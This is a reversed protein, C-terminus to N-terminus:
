SNNKSNSVDKGVDKNNKNICQLIIDSIVEIIENVTAQERQKEM